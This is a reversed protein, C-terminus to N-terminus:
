QEARFTIGELSVWNNSGVSFSVDGDPAIDIRGRDNPDAMVIFIARYAPRYGAPLSFIDGTGGEVLGRLHVIGQSDKFYGAPAYGAGYNLWGNEFTPTQWPEQELITLGGAVELRAQPTTTGVGVDTPFSVTGDSEFYIEQFGSAYNGITLLNLGHVYKIRGEMTSTEDEFILSGSSSSQTHLSTHLGGQVELASALFTPSTDLRPINPSLRADNITGAALSSADLLTLASGDGAFQNAPNSFHVQGAYSGPLAGDPVTEVTESTGAHMAYPAPLVPQRPSLPAGNVEVQLWRDGGDFTGPAYTLDFAILGDTVSEGLFTNTDLESGGVLADWVGITINVSGNLPSGGQKLLAQYTFTDGPGPSAAASVLNVALAVAVGSWVLVHSSM